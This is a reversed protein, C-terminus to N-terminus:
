LEIFDDELSSTYNDVNFVAEVDKPIFDSAREDSFCISEVISHESLQFKLSVSDDYRHHM